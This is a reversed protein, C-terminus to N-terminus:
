KMKGGECDLLQHAVTTGSSSALPSEALHGLDLKELRRRRVISQIPHAASALQSSCAAMTFNNRLASISSRCPLHQM